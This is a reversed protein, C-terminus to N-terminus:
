AWNVPYGTLTAGTARIYADEQQMQERTCNGRCWEYVGPRTPEFVVYFYPGRPSDPGLYKPPHPDDGAPQDPPRVYDDLMRGAIQWYSDEHFTNYEGMMTDYTTMLGGPAYDGGGEGAPINGPTHEIGLYGLPLVERFREGFQKVRQQQDDLEASTLAAQPQNVHRWRLPTTYTTQTKPEVGGWGYFCGDWGPRFLIYPTLDPNADTGDGQLAGIMRAMNKM